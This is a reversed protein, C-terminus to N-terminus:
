TFLLVNYILINFKYKLDNFKLYLKKEESDLLYLNILFKFLPYYQLNNSKWCFTKVIFLWINSNFKKLLGHRSSFINVHYVVVVILFSINTIVPTWYGVSLETCCADTSTLWYLKMSFYKRFRFNVFGGMRRGVNALASKLLYNLPNVGNM